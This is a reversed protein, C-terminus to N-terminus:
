QRRRCRHSNKFGIARIMQGWVAIESRFYDSAEAVTKITVDFGITKLKQQVEPERMIANIEANLKTVIADPTKAPAFFGVWSGSYVNPFGM